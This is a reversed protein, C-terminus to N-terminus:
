CKTSTRPDCQAIVLAREATYEEHIYDSLEEVSINHCQELRAWEQEDVEEVEIQHYDLRIPQTRARGSRRVSPMPTFPTEPETAPTSRDRICMESGM